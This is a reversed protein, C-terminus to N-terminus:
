YGDERSKCYYPKIECFGLVSGMAKRAFEEDIGEKESLERAIQMLAKCRCEEDINRLESCCNELSSCQKLPEISVEQCRSSQQEYEATTITTWYISSAEAMAVLVLLFSLKTLTSPM